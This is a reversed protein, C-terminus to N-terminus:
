TARVHTAQPGKPGQTVEFDVQQDGQPPPFLLGRDRLLARLCGSRPEPSPAEANFWKVTGTVHREKLPQIRTRVTRCRAPVRLPEELDQLPARLWASQSCASDCLCVLCSRGGQIASGAKRENGGATVKDSAVQGQVSTRRHLPRQDEAPRRCGAPPPVETTSKWLKIEIINEDLISISGTNM